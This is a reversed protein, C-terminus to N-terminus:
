TLDRHRLGALGAATLGVAVVLLWLLPTATFTGGPLKPVHTFPSFDVAWQSLKLFAGLETLLLFVALAGWALAALRPVLGFLAVAVGTLVWVAPLQVMASGLLQAVTKGVDGTNAGHILGMGLGALALLVVPGLV